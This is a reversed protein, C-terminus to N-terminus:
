PTGFCSAPPWRLDDCHPPHAPARVRERATWHRPLLHRRARNLAIHPLNRTTNDDRARAAHKSRPGPKLIRPNQIKGPHGASPAQSGM